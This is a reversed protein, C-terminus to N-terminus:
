DVEKNIEAGNRLWNLKRNFEEIATDVLQKPPLKEKRYTRVITSFMMHLILNVLEKLEGESKVRLNTTDLDKMCIKGPGRQKESFNEMQHLYRYEQKQIDFDSSIHRLVHDNMNLFLQRFYGVYEGEMVEHILLEFYMRYTEFLNGNTEDLLHSFTNMNNRRLYDFFYFYLDEIDEFYQYFSGRPIDALRIINSISAERISHLSFEEKAAALIRAKKEEPLRFFTEKPM